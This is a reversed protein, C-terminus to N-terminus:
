FQDRRGSEGASTGIPVGNEEEYSFDFGITLDAHAGAAASSTSVQFSGPVIEFDHGSPMAFAIGQALWCAVIAVITNISVMWARGNNEAGSM